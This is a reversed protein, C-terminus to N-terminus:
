FLLLCSLMPVLSLSPHAFSRAYINLNFSINCFWLIAFISKIDLAFVMYSKRKHRDRKKKKRWSAYLFVWITQVIWHHNMESDNCSILFERPVLSKSQQLCWFVLLLACTFIFCALGLANKHPFIWIFLTAFFCVFMLDTIVRQTHAFQLHLTPQNCETNHCHWNTRKARENMTLYVLMRKKHHKIRKEVCCRTDDVDSPSNTNIERWHM